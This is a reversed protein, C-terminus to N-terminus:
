KGQTSILNDKKLQSIIRIASETTTGVINLCYELSLILNLFGKDNV